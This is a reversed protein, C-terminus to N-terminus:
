SFIIKNEMFSQQEERCNECAENVWLALDALWNEEPKVQPPDGMPGVPAASAKSQAPSFWLLAAEGGCLDASYSLTAVSLAKLGGKPNRQRISRHYLALLLPPYSPSSTSFIMSSNTEPIRLWTVANCCYCLTPVHDLEMELLKLLSISNNYGISSKWHTFYSSFLGAWELAHPGTTYTNRQASTQQETASLLSCPLLM